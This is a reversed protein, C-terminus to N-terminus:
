KCIPLGMSIWSSYVVLWLHKPIPIFSNTSPTIDGTVKIPLPQLMALRGKKWALTSTNLKLGQRWCQHIIYGAADRINPTPTRTSGRVRHRVQRSM